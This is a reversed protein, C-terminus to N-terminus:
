SLRIRRAETASAGYDSLKGIISADPHQRVIENARQPSLAILLGGSTQPDLLVDVHQLDLEDSVECQHLYPQLHPYLTSRFGAKSLDMAGDLLPIDAMRLEATLTSSDLMELL